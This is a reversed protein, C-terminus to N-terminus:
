SHGCTNDNRGRREEYQISQIPNPQIPNSPIPHSPIPHSPSLSPHPYLYLM